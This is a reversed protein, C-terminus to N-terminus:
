PNTQSFIAGIGTRSADGEVIVLLQPDPYIFVPASSFLQKLQSFIVDLLIWSFPSATSTRQTLPAVVTSYNWIFHRYFNAFGLFQQIHKERNSPKQWNVVIEIKAPDPTFQGEALVYGLFSILVVSFECEEAKFLNIKSFVSSSWKGM